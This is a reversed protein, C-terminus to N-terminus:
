PTSSPSPSASQASPGAAASGDSPTPQDATAPEDAPAADAGAAADVAADEDDADRRERASMGGRAKRAADREALWRAAADRPGALAVYSIGWALLAAAALALLPHLGAWGLLAWCGALLALRLLSYVVFPM